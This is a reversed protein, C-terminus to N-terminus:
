TPDSRAPSWLTRGSLLTPTWAAIKSTWPECHGRPVRGPSYPLTFLLFASPKTWLIWYFNIHNLKTQTNLLLLFLDRTDSPDTLSPKQCILIYIFKHIIFCPVCTLKKIHYRIINIIVYRTKLFELVLRFSKIFIQRWKVCNDSITEIKQKWFRQITGSSM